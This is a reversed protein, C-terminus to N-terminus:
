GQQYGDPGCFCESTTTIPTWKLNPIQQSPLIDVIAVTSVEQCIEGGCGWGVTIDSVSSSIDEGCDTIRIFETLVITENFEFLVDGDGFGDFDNGDLVTQFVNSNPPSIDTGLDSIISIGGQHMDTFLFGQIAGPRTNVITFTRNLVNGQSGSMFVDNVQTIVLLARNVVYPPSTTTSFNGGIWNLNIDNSFSEANDICDVASCPAEVQFTFTASAGATLNPMLFVPAGLNSINGETAGVATSPLYALGCATGSNTTFVVEVSIGEMVVSSTNSITVSFPAAGCVYFEDPAPTEYTITQSFLTLSSFFFFAWILAVCKDTSSHM